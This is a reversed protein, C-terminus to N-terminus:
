KIIRENFGDLIKITRKEKKRRLVQKVLDIIENEEEFTIGDSQIILHNEFFSSM